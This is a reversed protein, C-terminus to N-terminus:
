ITLLLIVTFITLISAVVAPRYVLPMSGETPDSTLPPLQINQSVFPVPKRVVPAQQLCTVFALSKFCVLPIVLNLGAKLLAKSFLRSFLDTVRFVPNFKERTIKKFYIKIRSDIIM